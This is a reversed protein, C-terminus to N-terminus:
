KKFPEVECTYDTIIPDDYNTFMEFAEDYSEAEFSLERTYKFTYIMKM